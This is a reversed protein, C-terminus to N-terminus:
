GRDPWAGAGGGGQWAALVAACAAAFAPMGQALLGAIAGGLVDGSGATALAPCGSSNIAALGDPAAIVTDAGKLVIVAGTAMAARRARELKSPADIIAADGGFLRSFEGEHPTLVREAGPRKGLAALRQPNRALLTLADADVVLPVNQRLVVRM